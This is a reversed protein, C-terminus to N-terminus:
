NRILQLLKFRWYGPKFLGWFFMADIFFNIFLYSLKSCSIVSFIYSVINLSIIWEHEIKGKSFWISGGGWRLIRVGWTSFWQNLCLVNTMIWTIIYRVFIFTISNTTWVLIWIHWIYIIIIYKNMRKLLVVYYQCILVFVHLHLPYSSLLYPPIISIIEM